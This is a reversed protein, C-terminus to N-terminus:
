ADRGGRAGPRPAAITVLITEPTLPLSELRVGLADHHACGTVGGAHLAVTWDACKMLM